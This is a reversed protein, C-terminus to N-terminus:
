VRACSKKELFLIIILPSRRARLSPDGTKGESERRKGQLPWTWICIWIWHPTCHRLHPRRPESPTHTPSPPSPPLCARKKVSAGLFIPHGQRARLRGRSRGTSCTRIRPCPRGESEVGNQRAETPSSPTLRRQARDM